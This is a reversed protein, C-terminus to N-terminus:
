RKRKKRGKRPQRPKPAVPRPSHASARVPASLAPADPPPEEVAAPVSADPPEANQILPPPTSRLVPGNLSARTGDEAGGRASGRNVALGPLPAAAPRALSPPGSADDEFRYGYGYGYADDTSTTHLVLGLIPAGSQRMAGIARAMRKRSTAGARAVILTGDVQEALITADAVPLVPPCDFVIIAPEARLRALVDRARASSLLDSPNPPLPGAPLVWLHRESTVPQVAQSLATEGLLVSTLGVENSIGFHEHVRPRRLDWSVIIVQEETRSLVLGLNAATTTKGESETASTVQLWRLPRDIGLARVSTRLRRYAEASASMPDSVSVIGRGGGGSKTKAAPPILALIPLGPIAREVDEVDRVSDDLYEFALALAVSLVLGLGLALAGDRLPTPRVPEDPVSAPTVVAGVNIGSADINLQALRQRFPVQETILADRDQELADRAPCGGNAPCSISRLQASLDDIKAQLQDVTAQIQRSTSVLADAAQRRRFEFYADMYASTAAAAVKPDTSETTVELIATTGVQVASVEPVSGLKARALSRVAESEILEIETQAFDPDAPSEGTSFISQEQAVLVRGDSAYVKDQLLSYTVASAVVLATVVVILRRHRQLVTLYDRLNTGGPRDGDTAM